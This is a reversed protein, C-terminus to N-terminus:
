PALIRHGREAAQEFRELWPVTRMQYTNKLAKQIQVLFRWLGISREVNM